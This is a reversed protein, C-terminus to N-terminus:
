FYNGHGSYLLVATAAVAVLVAAIDGVARPPAEVREGRRFAMVVSLLAYAAFAGFLATKAWDGGIWLHSLSWVLVSIMMPHHVARKIRGAPAYAAVILAIAVAGLPVALTRAVDPGVWLPAGDPVRQYGIILAVFFILSALSYLGMYRGEGLRKRIDRGEARSRLASYAHMGFFGVLGILFLAM